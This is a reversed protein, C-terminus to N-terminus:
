KKKLIHGKVKTMGYYLKKAFNRATLLLKYKTFILSAYQVDHSGFKRKYDRIGVMDFIKCGKERWYQMATWIMYENPRYHQDPRYSAGGWFYSKNGYGLFISTAICREDPSIVRLCLVQESDALNKLLKKVKDKSYTPVLGQKAFVDELQKYYDEAFADNPKAFEIRAGRREFQRIFNRCDTKMQKFLADNDLDINLELTGISESNFGYETAKKVTIDRDIIQIFGCNTKEYLFPILENIIDCKEDIYETDIGMHCTSWGNFPSGLIKVGAKKVILGTFYGVLGRDDSIRVIVPDGKSDEKVFELWPFTTFVSKNKFSYYEEKNVDVFPILNFTYKNM